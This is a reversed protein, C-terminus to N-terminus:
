IILFQIFPVITITLCFYYFLLSIALCYYCYFLLLMLTISITFTASSNELRGGDSRLDGRRNIFDHIHTLSNNNGGVVLHHVQGLSRFFYRRILTPSFVAFYLHLLCHLLWVATALRIFGRRDYNVVSSDYRVQFYGM